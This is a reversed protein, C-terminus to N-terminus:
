KAMAIGGGVVCARHAKHLKMFNNLSNFQSKMLNRKRSDQGTLVSGSACCFYIKDQQYRQFLNHMISGEHLDVLAAMDEVSEVSTQHMPTVKQHTITSQKYTFVQSSFSCQKTDTKFFVAFIVLTIVHQQTLNRQVDGVSVDDLDEAAAVLLTKKKRYWNSM